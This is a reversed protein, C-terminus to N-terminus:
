EFDVAFVGETSKGDIRPTRVQAGAEVVLRRVEVKEVDLRRALETLSLRDEDPEFEVLIRARSEAAPDPKVLQLRFEGPPPPLQRVTELCRTVHAAVVRRDVAPTRIKFAPRPGTEPDEIAGAVYAVGKASLPIRHADTLGPINDGALATLTDNYRAVSLVIRTGILKQLRKFTESDAFQAGFVPVVNQSRAIRGIEELEALIKPGLPSELATIIEDCLVLRPRLGHEPDAAVNREVKANPNLDIPLDALRRNREAIEAKLKILYALFRQFTKDDAGFDFTGGGAEVLPKLPAFDNSPKFSWCDVDWLPDAAAEAGFVLFEFTKGAGPQGVVAIAPTDVAPIRAEKDREDFGALLGRNWLDPAPARPDLVPHPRPDGAMPDQKTWWIRVHKESGGYGRVPSLFLCEATIGLNGAIASHAKVADAFTKKGGGLRVVTEWGRGAKHPDIEVSLDDTLLDAGALAELVVGAHVRGETKKAPRNDTKTLRVTKPGHHRHVVDVLGLAAPAAALLILGGVKLGFLLLVFLAVCTVTFAVSGIQKAHKKKIKDFRVGMDERIEKPVGMETLLDLKKQREPMTLYRFTGVTVARVGRGACCAFTRAHLDLRWAHHAVRNWLFGLWWKLEAKPDHAIPRAVPLPERDRWPTRERPEAVSPKVIQADLEADLAALRADHNKQAEQGARRHRRPVHREGTEKTKRLPAAM